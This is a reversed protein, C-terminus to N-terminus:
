KRMKEKYPGAQPYLTLILSCASVRGTFWDSQALKLVSPAVISQIENETMARCIETISRVSQERVVTEDVACLHELLPILANKDQFLQWVKGFEEAIAYLVEDDEKKIVSDFYPILIENAAKPGIALL